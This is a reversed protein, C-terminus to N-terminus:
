ADNERDIGRLEPILEQDFETLITLIFDIFLILLSDWIIEIVRKLCDDFISEERM